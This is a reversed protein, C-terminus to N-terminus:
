IARVFWSLTMDALLGILLVIGVDRNSRFRRLCNAADETDLSTVQWSLQLTIAALALFTLMHADALFAAGAWLVVAGGYFVALWTKTEKGFRIATSKLGLLLDDEKDQHAYITDYGLTWLVAGAYLLLPAYALSGTESAWGVLAGWNFTLGLFLQPWYTFRKMYPYSAVLILASSALGVTYWNFQILVAFGVLCLIATFILAAEPSVQGSPIPRSRTRTVQADFDRDVYDNFACGAGRMVAAGIAFLVMSWPNPFAHGASMAALTLSWLCPLLLLWIGIPRDARALRLYPRWPEPAYSDVWNGPEADAVPRETTKDSSTSYKTM